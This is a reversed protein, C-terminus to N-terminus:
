LSISVFYKHVIFTQLAWLTIERLWKWVGYFEGKQGPRHYPVFCSGPM